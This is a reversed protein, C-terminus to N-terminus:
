QSDSAHAPQQVAQREAKTAPGVGAYPAQTWSVATGAAPRGHDSPLDYTYRLARRTRASGEVEAVATSDDELRALNWPAAAAGADGLGLAPPAHAQIWRERVM